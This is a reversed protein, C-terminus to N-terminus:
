GNSYEARSPYPSLREIPLQIRSVLGDHSRETSRQLTTWGVVRASETPHIDSKVDVLGAQHAPLPM